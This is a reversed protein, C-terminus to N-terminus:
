NKENVLNPDVFGGQDLQNLREEDADLSRFSFWFFIGAIFSIVGFVGYNWILNPDEALSIFAQQLAASIASTFLFVAMVFSRMSAPAKSFAYELGTISAFIESFAILVYSGTQAWVNIPAPLLVAGDESGDAGFDAIGDGNIDWCNSAQYGCQSTKYIRWQIIAAWLMAAAGTIFGATIRKLPTFNFGIKRFFPYLFLDFIPIFIILAFPDLNSTVENPLGNVIMTGAQSTLNNVIQNYCLWYAPIWIFVTCAKFGRRVEDVWADDFTMWRPKSEGLQKSPKANEWFDDATMQKWCRIPNWSFRGRAAFRWLRICEAYVSGSPPTKVYKNRGWFLVPICIMFVITPLSYALWFGVYKESFSMGLQGGLAGINIFLYFYMFIRAVTLTPDVIVREGTPLTTVSQKTGKVQEAIMPSISSKFWGTGLGMVIIAIVFCAMAGDPNDLVSPISSVILLVHGVLAIAIAICITKFRGWRTDALYAGLLPMCYVWFQNFTNIGTATQQGKGLAGSQNNSGGAGARSTSPRPWQVFNQFVQQCGYYSFREALECVAIAYATWPLKEPVRRLTAREEETPPCYDGDQVNAKVEAGHLHAAPHSDPAHGSAKIDHEYEDKKAEAMGAYYGDDAAGPM